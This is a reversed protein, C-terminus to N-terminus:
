LLSVLLPNHAFVRAKVPLGKRHADRRHEGMYIYIYIDLTGWFRIGGWVGVLGVRHFLAIGWGSLRSDSLGSLRMWMLLAMVVLVVNRM